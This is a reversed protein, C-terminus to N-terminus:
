NGKGSLQAQISNCMGCNPDSCVRGFYQQGNWIAFPRGAAKTYIWSDGNRVVPLGPPEHRYSAFAKLKEARPKLKALTDSYLYAVGVDAKVDTTTADGEVITILHDWGSEVVRRRALAARDPDLEIGTVKCNWRKAAAICWRADGCGYDVFGVDPKPLLGIVREVEALPTPVAEAQVSGPLVGFKVSSSGRGPLTGFNVGASAISPFLLLLVVFARM